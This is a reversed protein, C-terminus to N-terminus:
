FKSNFQISTASKHRSIMDAFFFPLYLILILIIGVAELAPIYWPWPGLFDMISASNPKHCLFLYNGHTIINVVAMLGMYANTFLITKVISKTTPRLGEEFTMILITTMIGAHALFFNFFVFHPFSYPYLDPTLLAQLSGAFGWFYTIEYIFYNKRVLLIVSFIMAMDCVHLPLSYGASWNGTRISWFTYLSENCLLFVALGYRFALKVKNHKLRRLFFILVINAAALVLLSFIHIGSFLKFPEGSFDASFFSELM